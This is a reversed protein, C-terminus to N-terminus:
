NIRNNASYAPAQLKKLLPNLLYLFADITPFNLMTSGGFFTNVANQIDKDSLNATAPEDYQEKYINTLEERIQSSVPDANYFASKIGNISNKYTKM